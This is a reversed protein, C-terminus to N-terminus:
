ILTLAFQRENSRPLKQNILIWAEDTNLGHSFIIKLEHAEGEPEGPSAAARSRGIGYRLNGKSKERKVIEAAHNLREPWM